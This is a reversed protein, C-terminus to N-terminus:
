AGFRGTRYSNQLCCVAQGTPAIRKYVDLFVPGLTGDSRRMQTTLDVTFERKKRISPWQRAVLKAIHRIGVGLNVKLKNKGDLIPCCEYIFLPFALKMSVDGADKLFVPM